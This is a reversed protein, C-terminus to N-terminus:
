KRERSVLYERKGFSGKEFRDRALCRSFICSFLFSSALFVSLEDRHASSQHIKQVVGIGGQFLFALICAFVWARTHQSAGSKKLTLYIFFILVFLACAKPASIGEHFMLAGWFTPIVMSSTTVLITIHMSGKSLATLKCFNAMMTLVGFLIGLLISYSSVRTGFTLLAFAVFCVVYTMSNFFFVDYKSRLKQKSITNHVCNQLVVSLTSICLLIYNMGCNKGKVRVAAM